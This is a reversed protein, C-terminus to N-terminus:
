LTLITQDPDSLYREAIRLLDASQVPKAIHETCGAAIQKEESDSGTSATLAIIPTNRFEVTKRLTTTAELGNMVPMRIDMLILKPKHIHAQKVAEKGNRAVVVKHNNISLIDLILNLNTENDEAILICGKKSCKRYKQPTTKNVIESNYNTRKVPLTFWFISGKGIESEVGIEGSHLEVLRRTLALGIGTGGLQEDRVHDTQHFESFIAEIEDAKIGIGNDSVSIKIHTDDDIYAKIVVKGNEPTYKVANSLLNLMIQKVKRCDAVFSPLNANVYTEVKINKKNFQTKMMTSTINIIDDTFIEELELKIAGADIKTMDLLDNILSLLHKGSTHIQRTYEQQKENLKGFFQGHLLDCFGLIVNLPTRLEHSISSLFRAKATNAEELRLNAETLTELSDRLEKTRANVIRELNERETALENEISKRETIDEINFTLLLDDLFHAKSVSIKIPFKSNDKRKGFTEKNLNKDNKSNEIFKNILHADPKESEFLSHIITDINIGILHGKYYGFMNEAAFNAFDIIGDKNTTIIGEAANEFITRIRSENKKLNIILPNTIRIFLSSGITIVIVALVTAKIGAKIFPTKIEALDIKAVIGMNLERVPEYAAVVVTGQYDLGIMTGSRNALANRMPEALASNFPIQNLAETKNHRHQILFVINNNEHRALTFEGTKGFGKYKEHADIIQALTSAEVDNLDDSINHKKGFRAVAEILRAQSKASNALWDCQNRLSDLYLERFIIFSVLSVSTAIILILYVVRVKETDIGSQKKM